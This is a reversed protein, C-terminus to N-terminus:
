LYKTLNVAGIKDGKCTGYKRMGSYIAEPSSRRLAVM